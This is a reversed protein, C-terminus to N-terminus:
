SKTYFCEEYFDNHEMWWGEERKELHTQTAALDEAENGCM